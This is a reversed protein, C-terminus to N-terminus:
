GTMLVAYMAISDYVGFLSRARLGSRGVGTTDEMECCCITRWYVNPPYGSSAEEIDWRRYLWGGEGFPAARVSCLLVFLRSISCRTDYSM